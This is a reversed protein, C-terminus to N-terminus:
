NPVDVPTKSTEIWRRFSSSYRFRLTRNFKNTPKDVANNWSTRYGDGWTVNGMQGGSANRLTIEIETADAAVPNTGSINPTSIKFAMSNTVEIVFRNALGWDITVTAGYTPFIANPIAPRRIIAASSMPGWHNNLRRIKYYWNEGITPFFIANDIFTGYKYTEHNWDNAFHNHAINVSEIGPLPSNGMPKSTTYFVGVAESEVGTTVVSAFDEFRNGVISSHKAFTALQSRDQWVGYRMRRFENGIVNLHILGLDGGLGWLGGVGITKVPVTVISNPNHLDFTGSVVEQHLTDGDVINGAFTLSNVVAPNEIYFTMAWKFPAGFPRDIPAITNFHITNSAVNVQNITNFAGSVEIDFARYTMNSCVNSVASQSLSDHHLNESFICALAYWDLTNSNFCSASGHLECASTLQKQLTTATVPLAFCNNVVRTNDAFINVTSHDRNGDAKRNDYFTNSDILVDRSFTGRSKRDHVVIVNAGPWDRFLCSRVRFGDVTVGEGNNFSGIWIACVNRNDYPQINLANQESNGYFAMSEFSLDSLSGSPGAFFMFPNLSTDATSNEKLKVISSWGSGMFRLNSYLLIGYKVNQASSTHKTGDIIYTGPPFFIVGGGGTNTAEVAARIAETDDDSGNGIAGFNKVNTFM